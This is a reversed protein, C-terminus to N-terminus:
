GGYVELSLVVEQALPVRRWEAQLSARGLFLRGIAGFQLSKRPSAAPFWRWAATGLLAGRDGALLRVLVGPGLGPRLPAGGAGRLDPAAMLEVDATVAAALAGGRALLAPGFGMEFRGAVCGPCGADVVRAAGARLKWSIRREFRDFANLSTAEMLSAEDLRLSRSRPLLTLRLKLFELQTTPSFGAPPDALDHLALRGDLVVLPGDATSVGGGAGLRMSGHGREPGGRSPPPIALQESAIPIASRRELLRQRLADADPDTGQVIARGHRVDVLDLATDLIHVREEEPAQVFDAPEGGEALIAVEDLQPGSLLSARAGLQTRASARFRVARVLGPNAFLAKVTDAPLTIKGVRTLLKLRLAAAELVGLVHYSCNETLYFYDFWTQGLEWLHGALMARELPELDLEYEWLDRSEYDAYERVKYFYPLVKFDGRFSGTLGNVVYAFPNTTDPTAGYSVGQDILELRDPRVGAVAKGLRLFTHGFASAPNNLYYSSFVVAVSRAGVRRWFEEFRPCGRPPLRALDFRLARALFAFRAPFRCQPHDSTADGPAVPEPAFFGRLTAELETEPDRKGDPALFFAPGDAESEFGGLLRSRWHGLRLWGQDRAVGAARAAGVLEDLYRPDPEVARAISPALAVAIAAVAGVCGPGAGRAVTRARSFSWHHM